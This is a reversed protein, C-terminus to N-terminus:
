CHPVTGSDHTGSLLPLYSSNVSHSYCYLAALVVSSYCQGFDSKLAMTKGQCANSSFLHALPRQTAAKHLVSQELQRALPNSTGKNVDEQGVHCRLGDLILSGISIQVWTGHPPHTPVMKVGTPPHTDVRDGGTTHPLRPITDQIM